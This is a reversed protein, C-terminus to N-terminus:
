RPRARNAPSVAATGRAAKTEPVSSRAPAASRPNRSKREPGAAAPTVSTVPTVTWDFEVAVAPHDSLPEGDGDVFRTDLRHSRPVLTLGVSSRFLVRDVVDPDKCRLETCADRLGVKKLLSELEDRESPGMNTDGAVLVASSPSSRQMAAALQALQARRAALDGAGDGADLHVDYVDVYAGPALEQRAFTFGKAAVCDCYADLIGHCTSWAQRAFDKFPLKAFQSLGDGLRLAQGGAFLPSGHPLPVASRLEKGYAFDEQVLAVDYDGLLKGILPMNVSPHSMSIGDPLGAVNYTLLRFSGTTVAAPATPAAPSPATQTLPALFLFLAAAWRKGDWRM